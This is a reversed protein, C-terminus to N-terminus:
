DPLKELKEKNEEYVYNEPDEAANEHDLFQYNEPDPLKELKEKNEEYVYTEPDDIANEHDRYQYNEPDPLKEYNKGKRKTVKPSKINKRQDFNKLNDNRYLNNQENERYGM